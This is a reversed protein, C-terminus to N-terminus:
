YGMVERVSLSNRFTKLERIVARKLGSETKFDKRRSWSSLTVSYGIYPPDLKYYSGLKHGNLLIDVFPTGPYKNNPVFQIAEM